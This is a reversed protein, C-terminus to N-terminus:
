DKKETLGSFVADADDIRLFVLAGVEVDLPQEMFDASVTGDTEDGAVIEDAKGSQAAADGPGAGPLEAVLHVPDHAADAVNQSFAGLAAM